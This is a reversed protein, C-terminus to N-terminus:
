RQANVSLRALQCTEFWSAAHPSSIKWQCHTRTRFAVDAAPSLTFYGRHLSAVIKSIMKKRLPLANACRRCRADPLRVEHGMWAKWLSWMLPPQGTVILGRSFKKDENILHIITVPTTFIADWCWPYAFFGHFVRGQPNLWMAVLGEYTRLHGEILGDRASFSCPSFFLRLIYNENASATNRTLEHWQRCCTQTWQTFFNRYKTIFNVNLVCRTESLVLFSSFHM